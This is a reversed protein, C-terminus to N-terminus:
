RLMGLAPVTRAPLRHRVPTPEFLIFSPLLRLPPQGLKTHQSVQNPTHNICTLMLAWPCIFIPLSLLKVHALLPSLLDIGSLPMGLTGSLMRRNELATNQLKDRTSNNVTRGNLYLSSLYFHRGHGQGPGHDGPAARSIGPSKIEQFRLKVKNWACHEPCHQQKSVTSRLPPHSQEPISSALPLGPSALANHVKCWHNSDPADPSQCLNM